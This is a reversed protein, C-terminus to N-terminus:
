SKDKPPRLLTICDYVTIFFMMAIVTDQLIESELQPYVLILFLCIIGLVTMNLISWLLANDPRNQRNCRNRMVTSFALIVMLITIYITTEM